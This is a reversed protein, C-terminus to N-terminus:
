KSLYWIGNVGYLIIYKGMKLPYFERDGEIHDDPGHKITVRSDSRNIIKIRSKTDNVSLADHDFTIKSDIKPLWITPFTTAGTCIVVDAENKIFYESHGPKLIIIRSEMRPGMTGKRGRPGKKSEQENSKSDSSM